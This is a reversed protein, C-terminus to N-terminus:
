SQRGEPERWRSLVGAVRNRVKTLRCFVESVDDYIMAGEATDPPMDVAGNGNLPEWGDLATNLMDLTGQLWERETM